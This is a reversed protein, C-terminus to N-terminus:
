DGRYIEMREITFFFAIHSYTEIVHRLHFIHVYVYEVPIIEFSDKLIRLLGLHDTIIRYSGNYETLFRFLGLPDMIIWKFVIPDTLIWSFGVPDYRRRNSRGVGATPGTCFDANKNHFRSLKEKTDSLVETRESTTYESCMLLKTKHHTFFVLCKDIRIITLTKIM